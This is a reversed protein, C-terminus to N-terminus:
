KHQSDTRGGSAQDEAPPLSTAVTPGVIARVGTEHVLRGGRNATNALM